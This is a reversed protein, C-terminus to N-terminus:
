MLTPAGPRLNLLDPSPWVRYKFNWTIDTGSIPHAPGGHGEKCTYTQDQAAPKETSQGGLSILCCSARDLTLM